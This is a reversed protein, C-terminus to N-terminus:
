ALAEVDVSGLYDAIRQRLQSERVAAPYVVVKNDKALLTFVNPGCDAQVSRVTADVLGRLQKNWAAKLAALEDPDATLDSLFRRTISDIQAVLQAEITNAYGKSATKDRELDRTTVAYVDQAFGRVLYRVQDATTVLDVLADRVDIEALGFARVPLPYMDTSIDDIVASMNGYIVLMSVITVRYNPPLDELRDGLEQLLIPSRSDSGQDGLALLQPIGRWGITHPLHKRPYWQGQPVGVKGDSKRLATHPEHTLNLEPLADGGRFCVGSVTDGDAILRVRRPTWTLLDVMGNAFRKRRSPPVDDRRWVPLDNPDLIQHGGNPLNLMLTEFLNDGIPCCFGIIGARGAFSAGAWSESPDDGAARGPSPVAVVQAAVLAQAAQAFTLPRPTADTDPTWIPTRNGTAVHPLLEAVSKGEVPTKASQMFPFRPDFLDFRSSGVAAIYADLADADFLGRERRTAWETDDAPQGYADMVLAMLLRLAGAFTPGDTISLADILDAETVCTRLPALTESGDRLVPVWPQTYVDFVPRYSM